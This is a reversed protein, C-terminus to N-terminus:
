YRLNVKQKRRYNYIKEILNKYSDVNPCDVLVGPQLSLKHLFDSHVFDPNKSLAYMTYVFTRRKYGDYYKSIDMVNDAVRRAEFLNGIKFEGSKFNPNKNLGEAGLLAMCESHGFGYYEKFEKYIQYDKNGMDCYGNMYDEATWNKANQNLIHIENLGYGKCVVYYLPLGLEKIVEFRHQGDIIEFRENVIIITFLYNEEMSKRIRNIHQLNKTRNGGFSSFMEYNKTTHIQNDIVMSEILNDM